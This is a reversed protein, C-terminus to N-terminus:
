VGVEEFYSGRKETSTGDEQYEILYLDSIKDSLLELGKRDIEEDTSLIIVQGPLQSFFSSLINERHKSDIRALPTDIVFPLEATRIKALAQYLAMVFIQKEGASFHQEIKLPVSIKGSTCGSDRIEQYAREGINSHVYEEGYQRIQELINTIEIETQKYAIVEFSSSIYIGDLLDTKSILQRFNQFFSEEVAAVYKKYLKQKLEGFALLTRASMDSVSREKLMSRYKEYARHYEKQVNKLKEEKQKQKEKEEMLQQNMTDLYMLLENKRTMYQSADAVQKSEMEARLKKTYKLSEEITQEADIITEAHYSEFYQIKTLLDMADNESIHLFEERGDSNEEGLTEKLASILNELIKENSIEPFNKLKKQLKEKLFPDSLKKQFIRGQRIKEEKTLQQRLEELQKKLIIFPIVENAASKLFQRLENRKNEEQQITQKLSNWEDDGVGGYKRAADDLVAIKDRTREIDEQLGHIKIDVKECEAKISNLEKEAEKYESVVEGKLNKKSIRINSQLQEEILDITDLGCIQLFAKRFLQGNVGDFVFDAIKEGDFFHFNFLAPPIVQMLYNEFDQMEEASLLKEDKYICLNERINEGELLWQRRIDFTSDAYGDEMFIQLSVDASAPMTMKIQDNMLKRIMGTYTRSNQRYGYLKYGYLCLRISEFITTKGAGNRGGIVVIKKKLNEIQFDFIHKGSFPGINNLRLQKIRM